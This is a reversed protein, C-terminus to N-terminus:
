GPPNASQWELTIALSGKGQGEVILGSLKGNKVALELGLSVTVADPAAKTLAGRITETIGELVAGLDAFDLRPVASAKMAGVGDVTSVRALATSGNALAIEVVQEQM